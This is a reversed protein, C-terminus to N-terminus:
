SGAETAVVVRYGNPDQLEFERMRYPQTTPEM